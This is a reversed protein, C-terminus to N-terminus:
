SARLTSVVRRLRRRYRVPVRRALRIRLTGRQQEALVDLLEPLRRERVLAWKRREIAALPDYIGKDATDLFANVRDLFLERYHEDGSGLVDLHYRLDHAVVSREYELLAGPPGERRLFATVDEVAALRDLLV